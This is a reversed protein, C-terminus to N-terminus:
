YTAKEVQYEQTNCRHLNKIAEFQYEIFVKKKKVLQSETVFTMTSCQVWRIM